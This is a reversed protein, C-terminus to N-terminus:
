RLNVKLSWKDPRPVPVAGAVLPRVQVRTEWVVPPPVLRKVVLSKKKKKQRVLSILVILWVLGFDSGPALGPVLHSDIQGEAESIFHM